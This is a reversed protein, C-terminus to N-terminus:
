RGGSCCLWTLSAASCSRLSQPNASNKFLLFRFEKQYVADHIGSFNKHKIRLDSSTPMQARLHSSPLLVSASHRSCYCSEQQYVCINKYWFQGKITHARTKTEEKHCEANIKWILFLPFHLAFHWCPIHLFFCYILLLLLLFWFSMCRAVCLDAGYTVQGQVATINGKLYNKLSLIYYYVKQTTYSQFHVSGVRDRSLLCRSGWLEPVLVVDLRRDEFPWPITEAIHLPAIPFFVSTVESQTYCWRTTCEHLQRM